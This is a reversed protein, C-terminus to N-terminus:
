NLSKLREIYFTNSIYDKMNKDDYIVYELWRHEIIHVM